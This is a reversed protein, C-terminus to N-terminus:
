QLFHSYIQRKLIEVQRHAASAQQHQPFRTPTHRQTHRTIRSWSASTYPTLPLTHSIDVRSTHPPLFIWVLHTPYSTLSISVLYTPHSFYRCLMHLIHSIDVRSTYPIRFIRVIHTPHAFYWCSKISYYAHSRKIFIWVLHTPHSFYGCSIHLTHSIDVRSTYPTLFIWVIEHLLIRSVTQCGACATHCFDIDSCCVAVCQLVSCWSKRVKQMSALTCPTLFSYVCLPIYVCCWATSYYLIRVGQVYWTDRATIWRLIASTYPSLIYM